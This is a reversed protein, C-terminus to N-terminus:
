DLVTFMIYQKSTGASVQIIHTGPRLSPVVVDTTVIGMSNVSPNAGSITNVGGFYIANILSSSPFEKGTITIIDGPKGEYKSLALTTRRVSHQADISVEDWSGDTLKYRTVVRVTNM